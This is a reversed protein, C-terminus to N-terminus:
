WGRAARITKATTRVKRDLDDLAHREFADRVEPSDLGYVNALKLAALREDASGRDVQVLWYAEDCPSPVTAKLLYELAGIDGRYLMSRLRVAHELAVAGRRAHAPNSCRWGVGYEGSGLRREVEAQQDLTLVADELFSRASDVHADFGNPFGGLDLYHLAARVLGPSHLGLDAAHGFGWQVQDDYGDAGDQDYPLDLIAVLQAEDSAYDQGLDHKTAINLAIRNVQAARRATADVEVLGRWGAGVLWPSIGRHRDFSDLFARALPTKSSDTLGAFELQQQFEDKAPARQFLETFATLTEPDHHKRCPVRGVRDATFRWARVFDLYRARVIPSDDGLHSLIRLAELGTADDRKVFERLVPTWRAALAANTLILDHLNALMGAADAGVALTSANQTTVYEAVAEDVYPDSERAYKLTAHLEWEDAPARPHVLNAIWARARQGLSDQRASLRQIAPLAGTASVRDEELLRFWALAKSADDQEGELLAGVAAGFASGAFKRAWNQVRRSDMLTEPNSSEIAAERLARVRTLLETLAKDAHHGSLILAEAASLSARVDTGHLDIACQAADVTKMALPPLFLTAVPVPDGSAIYDQPPLLDHPIQWAILVTDSVCRAVRDTSEKCCRELAAVVAESRDDIYYLSWLADTSALQRRHLEAVWDMTSKQAYDLAAVFKRPPEPPPSQQQLLMSARLFLQALM